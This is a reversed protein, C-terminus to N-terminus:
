FKYLERDFKIPHNGNDSIDLIKYPTQNKFDFAVIPNLKKDVISINEFIKEINEITLFKQYAGGYQIEGNFFSRYEEPCDDMPNAAGIWLYSNKYDIIDQTFYKEETIGNCYLSIQKKYKNYSFAIDITDKDNEKFADILIDVFKYGGNGDNCWITGKGYFVIPNENISCVVSIGCHMGNKMMISYEIQNTKKSHEIMANKDLLVRSVISFDDNTMNVVDGSNLGYKNNPPVFLCDNGKFIHNIM